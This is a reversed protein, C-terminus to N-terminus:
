LINTFSVKLMEAETMKLGEYLGKLHTNTNVQDAPVSETARHLIDAVNLLDKCFNQIGFMKADDIQKTLRRRLNESDALSRKYKDQM